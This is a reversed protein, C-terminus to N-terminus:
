TEGGCECQCGRLTGPCRVPRRGRPTLEGGYCGGSPPEDAIIMVFRCEQSPECLEKRKECVARCEKIARSFFDERATEEVSGTGTITPPNTFNVRGCHKRTEKEEQRAEKEEQREAKELEKAEQKSLADRCTDTRKEGTPEWGGSRCVVEETVTCETEVPCSPHTGACRGSARGTNKAGRDALEPTCREAVQLPGTTLCRCTGQGRAPAAGVLWALAGGVLGRLVRRRPVGASALYRALDDFARHDM